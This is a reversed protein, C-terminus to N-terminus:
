RPKRYPEGKEYLRDFFAAYQSALKSNRIHIGKPEETESWSFFIVNDKIIAIGQPFDFSV